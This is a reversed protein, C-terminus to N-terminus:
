QNMSKNLIMYYGGMVESGALSLRGEEIADEEEEEGVGRRHMSGGHFSGGHFSPDKQSPSQIEIEVQNGKGEVSGELVLQSVEVEKGKGWLVVYVGIVILGGGLLTGLHIKEDLFLSGAIAVMILMLPNFISVFVPGKKRVCWAILSFMLGSGVIGAYAVVFLRVNWGLKWENWDRVTCVSYVFSQVTGMSMMLATFSYACPYREAAKAQLILWCSYCLCGALAIVTGLFYNTKVVKSPPTKHLLHINTSWLHLEPGQYFTLLMAGGIGFMTGLAKGKGAATNLGLKELGLIVAVIFTIGPILNFIATAYTASTYSLSKLYLNQGLSGGFLGCLFALFLITWTLKPRKKREAFYSVPGIFGAAFLFRYFVLISLNMGDSAAIKYLVNVGAFITQVSLMIIAPKLDHLLNQTDGM